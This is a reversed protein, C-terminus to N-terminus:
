SKSRRTPVGYEALRYQITRLSVDLWEATKSTSGESAEFTKLIVYREVEALTSGPIKIGAAIDPTPEVDLAEVQVMDGETFLVAHEMARRLEPLNGPWDHALVQQRAPESLGNLVRRNDAAARRLFHEALLVSDTGRLRLPPLALQVVGLRYLLAENFCGERVQAQLDRRTIGIIRVNPLSNEDDAGVSGSLTELMTLLAAQAPAALECVDSLCLTGGDAQQAASLRFVEDQAAELEFANASATACDFEVFLGGRGSLTHITRALASRGTGPSGTILVSAKSAAVRRVDKFIRQMLPSTGVLEGLGAGERDRLQTRLSEAESLLALHSLTREITLLLVDFDIPKTLYDQAGARMAAVASAVHDQATVMVMALQPHKQKVRSLLEMGSMRPMNLDTIILAPARLNVLELAEAGDAAVDVDYGEKLLLKGLWRRGSADDDVVLVRAKSM